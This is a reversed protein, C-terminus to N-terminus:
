PSTTMTAHASQALRRMEETQQHALVHRLVNEALSHRQERLTAVGMGVCFSAPTDSLELCVVGAM